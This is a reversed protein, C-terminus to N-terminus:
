YSYMVDLNYTNIVGGQQDNLLRVGLGGQIKDIYQDYAAQYTIFAGGANPWQNRYGIYVRAPGEIGALSPNLHLSNAFFHSFVPDQAQGAGTGAALILSFLITKIDKM